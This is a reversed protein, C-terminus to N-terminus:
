HSDLTLLHRSVPPSVKFMVELKRCLLWRTCLSMKIVRYKTLHKKRSKRVIVDEIYESYTYFTITTGSWVWHCVCVYMCICMCVNCVYMCVYTRVYMCVYTRVYMCIYTRVYMCVYMRVYTRVYMCIYTRVYMCGYMCVYTRVYM